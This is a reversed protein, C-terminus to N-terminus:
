VGFINNCSLIRNSDCKARQFKQVVFPCGNIRSTLFDLRNDLAVRSLLALRMENRDRYFTMAMLESCTSVSKYMLVETCPLADRGQKYM